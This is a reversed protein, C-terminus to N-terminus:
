LMLTSLANTSISLRSTGIRSPLPCGNTSDSERARADLLVPPAPSIRRMRRGTVTSPPPLRM